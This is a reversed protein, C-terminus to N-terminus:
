VGFSGLVREGTGINAVHLTFEPVAPDDAVLIGIIGATFLLHRSELKRM